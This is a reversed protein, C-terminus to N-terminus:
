IDRSEDVNVIFNAFWRVQEVFMDAEIYEDVTHANNFTGQFILYAFRYINRTLNWYRKTDTNGTTMFPAMHIGDSYKRMVDPRTAYVSKTTGSLLRWAPSEVTYPSVPAPELSSNWAEALTLKGAAKDQAHIVTGFAEFDLNFKSAMSKLVDTIREQVAEVSSAISIRHNIYATVVEPLANIKAGGAIIDIAQTTTIAATGARGAYATWFAEVKKLAQKDVKDKALGDTLKKVQRKFEDPLPAYKATCGIFSVLPSEPNLYPVHPHREIETVALAAYGIGTHPPPVSSHGGSTDVKLEVDLYGKEAVAPLAFVQGFLEGMGGGEDVILAMSDKGYKAELWKGMHYAGGTEEDCGLALIVTRTPNFKGSELLLEIASLAGILGSKDDMSGRGWIYKGDYEGGYPDHTWLHRTDELVPVVDQHALFLLPKLSPDSGPWEYVLAHTQVRTRTLQEHSLPFVKELYDAFEYFVDWRKDEGIPGMEDFIETPIKVANSLWTIIRDKKGELLSSVDWSPSLASAQKCEGAHKNPNSKLDAMPTSWAVSDMVLSQARDVVMSRTPPYLMPLLCLAAVLPKVWGRSRPANNRVPEVPIEPRGM